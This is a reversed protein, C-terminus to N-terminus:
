SILLIGSWDPLQHIFRYNRQNWQTVLNTLDLIIQWMWPKIVLTAYDPRFLSFFFRFILLISDFRTQIKLSKLIFNYTSNEQTHTSVLTWCNLMIADITYNPWTLQRNNLAGCLSHSQTIVCHFIVFVWYLSCAQMSLSLDYWCNRM